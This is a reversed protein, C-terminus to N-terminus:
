HETHGRLLEVAHPLIALLTKSTQRAAIESGPLNIILTKARIGATARSLAARKTIKFSEWRILEPIGPCLKDMVDRTAEPACDRPGMGTGGVTFIVDAVRGDSWKKLLAGIKKRDDPLIMRATIKIDLASTKLLALTKEVAPGATDRRLGRSGKDSCTM